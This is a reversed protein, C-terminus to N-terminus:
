RLCVTEASHLTELSVNWAEDEYKTDVEAEKVKNLKKLLIRSISWNPTADIRCVAHRNGYSRTDVKNMRGRKYLIM